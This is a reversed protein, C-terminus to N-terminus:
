EFFYPIKITKKGDKVFNDIDRAICTVVEMRIESAKKQVEKNFEKQTMKKYHESNKNM